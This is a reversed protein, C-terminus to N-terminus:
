SGLLIPLSRYANNFNSRLRVPEGALTLSDFAALLEEFFVRGELRALHAGLCFHEAFGFSVHRNPSRHIDFSQADDFVSEDRNASTYYMALKQGAAIAVGSLETDATATRRMYHIPNSWRLIEEVAGPILSPDGRLEALQDPHQLLAVLGSSTLTKTTDNGAAVLQVFFTGFDVDTMRHGDFDETLLVDSVDGRPEGKRREAAFNMAYGVLEILSGHDDEDAVDPDQGALMRESLTHVYPWDAEPLGMLQGMVRTPMKGSVQHVFDVEPGAERAETMIDRCITRISAELEGISKPKFCPVVPKRYNTHRPPDMVVLMDRSMALAEPTSDELMIGGESASFLNPEHAVRLVDAHTLVAFFGPQGDMEQWSVPETRRLEALLEHPPGDAFTDPDALRTPSQLTGTM